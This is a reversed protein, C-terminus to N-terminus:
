VSFKGVFIEPQYFYEINERIKEEPWDWWRIKLLQEIIDDSFRKRIPKAPVGGVITYPPVDHTVVAGAACVAGDHITVGPLIIVNHGIWVDNGIFVPPNNRTPKDHYRWCNDRHKGYKDVYSCIQRYESETGWGNYELLGAHVSVLDLSHNVVVRATDNINCYRGINEAMSFSSLLSKYGYTRAGIKCHKYFFDFDTNEGVYNEWISTLAFSVQTPKVFSPLSKVADQMENGDESSIIIISESTLSEAKLDSIGLINNNNLALKNDIIGKEKIGYRNNLIDKVQSGVAGFPYIYYDKKGHGICDEIESCICGSREDLNM